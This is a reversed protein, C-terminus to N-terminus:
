GGAQALAAELLGRVVESRSTGRRDAEADLRQLLSLSVATNMPTLPQGYRPPPGSRRRRRTLIPTSSSMDTHYDRKDFMRKPSLTRKAM